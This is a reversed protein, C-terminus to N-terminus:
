LYACWEGALFSYTETFEQDDPIGHSFCSLIESKYLYTKNMKGSVYSSTIRTAETIDMPPYAFATKTYAYGGSDKKNSYNYYSTQRIKIPLKVSDQHLIVNTAEAPVYYSLLIGDPNKADLYIM